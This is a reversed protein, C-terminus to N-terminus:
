AARAVPERYVVTTSLTAVRRDDQNRVQTQKVVFQLAGGKKDYIDTITADFSLRDGAFAPAHYDFRQQGHLIYLLNVGIDTLWALPEPDDMMELCFLYTPPVRLGRDSGPDSSPDARAAQRDGIVDLFFRLRGAEVTRTVRSLVKGIHQRDLM